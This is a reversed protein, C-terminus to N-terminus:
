GHHGGQSTGAASMLLPDLPVGARDLDTLLKPLAPFSDVPLRIPAGRRREVILLHMPRNGHLLAVGAGRLGGFLVLLPALWRPPRRVEGRVNAIEGLPLAVRHRITAVLLRDAELLVWYCQYRAAIWFILLSIAGPLGTLLMPGWPGGLSSDWAAVIFPLAFFTTALLAGLLDPMYVSPLREVFYAGEPPAPRPLLIYILLAIVLAIAAVLWASYGAAAVAAVLLALEAGARRVLEIRGQPSLFAM